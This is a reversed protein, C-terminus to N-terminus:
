MWSRQLRELADAGPCLEEHTIKVLPTETTNTLEHLAPAEEDVYLVGTVVEGAEHREQLYRMVSVRDTPDYGAPAQRFHLVSGDHMTVSEVGAPPISATVERRHPIFDAGTVHVEHERMYRYSKTSGEHDNFTVCPSLVDVLAFGRHM